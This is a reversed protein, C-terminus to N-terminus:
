KNQLTIRVTQLQHELPQLSLVQEHLYAIENQSQQLASKLDRNEEM